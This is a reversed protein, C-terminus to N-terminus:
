VRLNVRHEKTKMAESIMLDYDTSESLDVFNKVVRPIQYHLGVDEAEPQFGLKAVRTVKELLIRAFRYFSTDSPLTIIASALPQRKKEPKLM